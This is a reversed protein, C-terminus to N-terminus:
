RCVTVMGLVLRAWRVTVGNISVVLGHWWWSWATRRRDATYVSYSYSHNPYEIAARRILSPCTQITLPDGDYLSHALYVILWRTSKTFSYTVSRSICQRTKLCARPAVNSMSNSSRCGLLKNNSYEGLIKVM